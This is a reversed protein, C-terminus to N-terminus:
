PRFGVARWLAASEFLAGSKMVFRVTRINSINELPNADLVLLDAIKGAEITGLDKARGMAMAPVATASRLADMPSIGAQVYLEMERYVSYAPVGEDTGVVIPIGADHLAKTIALSRALRAHATATDTTTGWGAARTQMFVPPLHQTVPQFNQLPEAQSHGGIENWSATPDIVTDHQKLFRLLATLSDGEARIPQHAVQDMGSDIAAQLTLSTPIHGTVTMGLKHAEDCIAGVVAPSLLSYLKMQEFGLDHYRRVIERGEEPTSASLAGFANPGPGDVLGAAIINPGAARGSEIAQRLVTIFPLENGMDRVTTVGAALYVPAWELQHLHAHSDWLGPIITKGAVNVRRANAPVKVRASPGAAIIKGNNVVVTANRIAANGTGDVLTAGVLAVSGRAIPKTRAAIAVMDNVAARAAIAMLEAHLPVLEAQVGKMSLGGAASAFMAMRGTADLWLYENGWVVGNIVYRTLHLASTGTGLTDIGARTITITNVPGGPVIALSQPSGHAMWYRLLALHQSLPQYPSIAFAVVPLAVDSTTGNRLVTATKGHVEVHTVPTRSTDSLRAVDLKKPAYKADLLMTSQIRNRRGRDIYDFDASLQLGTADSTFDYREWGVPRGVYYLRLSDHVPIFAQRMNADVTTAVQVAHKNAAQGRAWSAPLAAVAASMTALVLQRTIRM